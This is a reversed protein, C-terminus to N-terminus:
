SEFLVSLRELSMMCAVGFVASSIFFNWNRRQVGFITTLLLSILLVSTVILIQGVELGLNFSLLPVLINEANGLLSKLLYSFGLGHILGFALTLFYNSRFNKDSNIDLRRLNYLCTLLITIPILFEIWLSNVKLLSTVSLALTLCHGVTFATILVLLNKWNRFEYVGCLALLFLIHDYGKWDIIHQFGTTFWLSFDNV